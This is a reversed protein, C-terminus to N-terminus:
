QVCVSRWGFSSLHWLRVPGVEVWEKQRAFFVEFFIFAIGFVVLIAIQWGPVKEMYEFTNLIEMVDGDDGETFM